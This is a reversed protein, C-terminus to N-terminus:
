SLGEALPELHAALWADYADILMRTVPGPARLEIADIRRVPVIGRTSSSIFAEDARELAELTPAELQVPVRGDAVTLVIRRATGALVGDGATHLTGDIVAYFNSSAGELVHGGPDVLLTEYADPVNEGRPQLAGRAHLWATSKVEPRERTAAATACTVGTARLAEPLDRAPELAVRYWPTADLVATVRFRVDPWDRARREHELLARIRARPVELAVGLTRASREMRHFHADLDLVRGNHWTRAVLYVGHDPEDAAAEALDAARTAVPRPTEDRLEILAIALNPDEHCPRASFSVGLGVGTSKGSIPM